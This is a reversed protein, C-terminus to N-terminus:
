LGRVAPAFMPSVCLGFFYKAFDTCVIAISLFFLIGYGSGVPLGTCNTSVSGCFFDQRVNHQPYGRPRFWRLEKPRQERDVRNFQRRCESAIKMEIQQSAHQTAKNTTLIHQSKRLGCPILHTVLMWSSMRYMYKTEKQSSSGFLYAQRLTIDARLTCRPQM